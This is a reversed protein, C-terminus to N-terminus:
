LTIDTCPRRSAVKLRTVQSALVASNDIQRVELKAQAAEAAVYKNVGVIIQAGSDIQAQQRAASEEIKLKPLGARREVASLSLRAAYISGELLVPLQSNQM